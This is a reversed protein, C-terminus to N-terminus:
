SRIILETFLCCVINVNLSAMDGHFDGEFYSSLKSFISKDTVGSGLKLDLWDSLVDKASLLLTQFYFFEIESILYKFVSLEASAHVVTECM